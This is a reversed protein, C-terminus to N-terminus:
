ERLRAALMELVADLTPNPERSTQDALPTSSVLRYMEAAGEFIAPTLGLAGFTAAIEEMEPVWRRARRPM